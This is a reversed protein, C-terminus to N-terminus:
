VKFNQVYVPEYKFFENHGKMDKLDLHIGNEM